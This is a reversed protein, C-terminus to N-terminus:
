SKKPKTFEGPPIMTEDRALEERMLYAIEIIEPYEKAFFECNSLICIARKYFYWESDSLSKIERVWVEKNYNESATKSWTFRVKEKQRLYPNLDELMNNVEHLEPYQKAFFDWELVLKLAANYFCREHDSMRAIERVLMKTSSM